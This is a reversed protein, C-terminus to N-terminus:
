ELAIVDIEVLCDKPLRAVEVTSRAPPNATFFKAYVENMAAFSNMDKLFVGCRVVKDLSSGAAKLIAEINRLVRDTQAAVGGTIMQQTAPDVPIQGSLFIIGNAKIAQSYPGIAKPANDTSIVTRM